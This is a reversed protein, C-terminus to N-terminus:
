DEERVHEISQLQQLLYKDVNAYLSDIDPDCSNVDMADSLERVGLNAFKWHLPIRLAHPGVSQTVM